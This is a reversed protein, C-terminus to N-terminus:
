PPTRVTSLEIQYIKVSSQGLLSRTHVWAMSTEEVPMGYFLIKFMKIASQLNILPTCVENANSHPCLTISDFPTNAATNLKLLSFILSNSHLFCADRHQPFPGYSAQYSANRSIECACPHDGPLQKPGAWHKCMWWLSLNYQWFNYWQVSYMLVFRHVCSCVHLYM